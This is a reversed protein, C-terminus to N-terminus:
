ITKINMNRYTFREIPEETFGSIEAEVEMNEIHFDSLLYQKKDAVVDFYYNCSFSCDRITVHSVSSLPLDTRGELDFFQRWPNLEIFKVVTGRIDEVRIYEYKQPTDPRMKFWLVRTVDRIEIRRMVVNRNHISESGCTLCGHCKDFICDEILVRENSGNEPLTDAWPGKGGKLAVCDDNVSIYCGKVHVDCCADVDIADSSPAGLPESPAYITCDLFRVHDCKYIHNTWFHSNQLRVGTVLVNKSNSIYLLRPRQEDKNTCAPNWKKRTWFAKWARMGNGDVTGKGFVTFGDVGDANILAPFYTCSQGEIRTQMLPYDSIDDSGMLVADESLYLHVGQKFFLAGTKYTGKPVVIVGGGSAAVDDILAQIAETYIGGDASVGHDTIVFATGFSALEPVSYEYFWDAVKTGDPFFEQTHM